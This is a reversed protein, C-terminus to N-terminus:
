IQNQELIEKIKDLVGETQEREISSLNTTLSSELMEVLRMSVMQQAVFVDIPQEEEDNTLNHKKAIIQTTSLLDRALLLIDLLRNSLNSALYLSNIISPINFSQIAYVVNSHSSQIIKLLIKDIQKIHDHSAYAIHSELHSLLYNSLYFLCVTESAEISYEIFRFFQTMLLDQASEQSRYNTTGPFRDGRFSRLVIIARTFITHTLKFSSLAEISTQIIPHTSPRNPGPHILDTCLLVVRQHVVRFDENTLLFDLTNAIRPQLVLSFRATSAETLKHLIFLCDNISNIHEKNNPANPASFYTSLYVLVDLIKPFLPDYSPHDPFAPCLNRLFFIVDYLVPSDLVLFNEIMKLIDSSTFILERIEQSEAAINGLAWLTDSVLQQHNSSLLQPIYDLFGSYAIAVAAESSLNSMISICQVAMNTFSIDDRLRIQAVLIEGINNHVLHHTLTKGLETLRISHLYEFEKRWDEEDQSTLRRIVDPITHDPHTPIPKQHFHESLYDASPNIGKVPSIETRKDHSSGLVPRATGNDDFLGKQSDLSRPQVSGGMIQTEISAVINNCMESLISIFAPAYNTELETFASKITPDSSDPHGFSTIITTLAKMGNAYLELVVSIHESRASFDIATQFSMRIIDLITTLIFLTDTPTSLVIDSVCLLAAPFVREDVALGVHGPMQTQRTFMDCIVPLLTAVFPAFRNEMQIAFIAIIDLAYKQITWIQDQNLCILLYNGLSEFFSTNFPNTFNVVISLSELVNQQFAMDNITALKSYIPTLKNFHSQIAYQIKKTTAGIITLEASLLELSQNQNMMMDDLVGTLKESLESNHAPGCAWIIKEMAKTSERVLPAVDGSGGRALISFLPEYLHTLMQGVYNLPHKRISRPCNGALSKIAKAVRTAIFPDPSALGQRLYLLIQIWNEDVQKPLVTRPAILHAYSRCIVQVAYACAGQVAYEEDGVLGQLILPFVRVLFTKMTRRRAKCADYDDQALRIDTKSAKLSKLVKTRDKLNNKETRTGLILITLVFLAAARSNFPPPTGCPQASLINQGQGSVHVLNSETFSSLENFLDASNAVGVIESTLNLARWIDDRDAITEYQNITQIRTLMLGTLQSASKETLSKDLQLPLCDNFYLNSIQRASTPFSNRYKLDSEFSVITIWFEIASAVIEQQDKQITALTCEFITAAYETIFPYYYEALINLCTYSQLRHSYQKDPQDQEPIALIPGIIAKVILDRPAKESFRKHVAPLLHALAFLAEVEAEDDSDDRFPKTYDLSSTVILNLLDDQYPEMSRIPLDECLYRLSMISARKLRMNLHHQTLLDQILTPNQNQSVPDNQVFLIRPLLENDASQLLNVNHLLESILDTEVGNQIEIVGIASLVLAASNAVQIISSRLALKANGTIRTRSESQFGFWLATKEAKDKKTQSKVKNKLQGGAVIRSNYNPSNENALEDSLLVCYLELNEQEFSTLISQAQNVTGQDLTGLLISVFLNRDSNVM